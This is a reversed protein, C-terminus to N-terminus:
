EVSFVKHLLKELMTYPPVSIGCVANTSSWVINLGQLAYYSSLRSYYVKGIFFHVFVFCFCVLSDQFQVKVTDKSKGGLLM